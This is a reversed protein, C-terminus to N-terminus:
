IVVVRNCSHRVNKNSKKNENEVEMKEKMENTVSVSNRTDPKGKEDDSTKGCGSIALIICLVIILFTRKRM